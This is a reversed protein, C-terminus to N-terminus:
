APRKAKRGPGATVPKRKSWLLVVPAAIYISSYTGAVVGVIMAFAFDHLVSGGLFFLVISVLLVTGSTLITRSLTENISTNIIESFSKLRLLRMNERIRDFVVVTDNVSFGIITLIAAIVTLTIEKGLLSFFTLVVLTDHFLAIIAGLAFKFDFRVGIYILIGIFSLLVALLGQRRLDQGARAGVLDEKLVTFSGAGFKQALAAEVQTAVSKTGESVTPVRVLFENDTTIGIQQVTTEGLKLADVAARIDDTQVAQKFRVHVETGGTFDIGFSLGQHALMSVLGVAILIGSLAMFFNRKGIFDINTGPKIWEM